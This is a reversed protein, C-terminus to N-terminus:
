PAPVREQESFFAEVRRMVAQGNEGERARIPHGFVVRIRHRRRWVRRRPWVQGPPMAERTGSVYIPMIALRHEGAIFAAGSHLRGVEGERSRTGEPFVLLNWRRDLLDDVHALDDM